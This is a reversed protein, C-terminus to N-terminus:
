VEYLVYIHGRNFGTASYGASDYLGSDTRGLNIGSNSWTIVGGNVVGSGAVVSNLPTYVNDTDDRIRILVQIIRKFNSFVYSGIPVFIDDTTDMNWDGIPILATYIGNVAVAGTGKGNIQLNCDNTSSATQIYRNSANESLRGIHLISDIGDGGIAIHTTLYESRAFLQKYREGPIFPVGTGFIIRGTSGDVSDDTKLQIDGTGKSELQLKINPNSGRTALYRVGGAEVVNGIYVVGDTGKPELSIDIQAQSGNARVIHNTNTSSNDGILLLGQLFSLTINGTGKTKLIIGTNAENSKVEITRDTGALSTNGLNITPVSLTNSSFTLNANGALAGANNYIIQTDAGAIVGGGPTLTYEGATNDWSITYGDETVTPTTVLTNVGKGVIKTDAYIKQIFSLNDYNASFDSAGQIGKASALTNTVTIGSSNLTINSLGAGNNYELLVQNITNVNFQRIKSGSTGFSLAFNGTVNTDKVLPGGFQLLNNEFTLANNVIVDGFSAISKIQKIIDGGCTM